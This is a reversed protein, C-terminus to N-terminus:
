VISYEKLAEPNLSVLILRGVLGSLWRVSISAEDMMIIDIDSFSCTEFRLKLDANPEEVDLMVLLVPLRLPHPLVIVLVDYLTSREVSQPCSSDIRQWAISVLGGCDTSSHPKKTSVKGDLLCQLAVSRHDEKVKIACLCATKLASVFTCESRKV